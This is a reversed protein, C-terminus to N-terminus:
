YRFDAYCATKIGEMLPEWLMKNDSILKIEGVWAYVLM